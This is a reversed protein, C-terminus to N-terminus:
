LYVVSMAKLSNTSKKTSSVRDFSSINLNKFKHRFSCSSLTCASSFRSCEMSFKMSLTSLSPKLVGSLFCAFFTIIFSGASAVSYHNGFSSSHSTKTNILDSKTFQLFFLTLKLTQNKNEIPATHIRAQPKLEFCYFFCIDLASKLTSQRITM